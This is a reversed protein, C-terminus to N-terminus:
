HGEEEDHTTSLQIYVACLLSFVIAQLGGVLLELFFIPLPALVSAIFTVFAPLNYADVITSVFAIVFVSAYARVSVDM